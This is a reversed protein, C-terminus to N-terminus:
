VCCRCRLWAAVRCRKVAARRSAVRERRLEGVNMDLRVDVAAREDDCQWRVVLRRHVVRQTVSDCVEAQRQQPEFLSPVSEGVHEALRSRLVVALLSLGLSLALGGTDSDTM